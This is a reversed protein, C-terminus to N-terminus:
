RLQLTSEPRKELVAIDVFVLLAGLELVVRFNHVLKGVIEVITKEKTEVHVYDGAISDRKQLSANM